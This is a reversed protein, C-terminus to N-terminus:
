RYYNTEVSGDMKTHLRKRFRGSGLLRLPTAGRFVSNTKLVNTVSGVSQTSCGSFNTEVGGDGALLLLVCSIFFVLMLSFVMLFFYKM